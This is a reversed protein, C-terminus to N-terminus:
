LLTPKRAKVVFLLVELTDDRIERLAFVEHTRVSVVKGITMPICRIHVIAVPQANRRAGFREHIWSLILLKARICGVSAFFNEDARIAREVVSPAGARTMHAACLEFGGTDVRRLIQISLM